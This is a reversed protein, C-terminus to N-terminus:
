KPPIINRKGDDILLESFLDLQVNNTQVKKTRGSRNYGKTQGAKQKGTQQKGTRKKESPVSTVKPTSAKIEQNFREVEEAHRYRRIRFIIIKM